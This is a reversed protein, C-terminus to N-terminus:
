LVLLGHAKLVRLWDGVVDSDPVPPCQQMETDITCRLLSHSKLGAKTVSQTSSLVVITSDLPRVSSNLGLISDLVCSQQCVKYRVAIHKNNQVAPIM